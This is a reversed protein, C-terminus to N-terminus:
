IDIDMDMDIDIYLKSDVKREFHKRQCNRRSEQIADGSKHMEETEESSGTVSKNRRIGMEKV